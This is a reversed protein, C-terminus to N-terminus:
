QYMMGEIEKTIKSIEKTIEFTDKVAKEIAKKELAKLTIGRDMIEKPQLTAVNKREFTRLAQTM